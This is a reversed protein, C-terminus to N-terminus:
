ESDSGPLETARRASPTSLFRGNSGTISKKPIDGEERLAHISILRGASSGVTLWTARRASPTSLFKRLKVANRRNRLDGEERLAHISIKGGAKKIRIVPTDGEERLAHISIQAPQPRRPKWYLRGGRPPRPYFHLVHPINRPPHKTAGRASPTSLFSTDSVPTRRM